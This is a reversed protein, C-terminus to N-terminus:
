GDNIHKAYVFITEAHRQAAAITTTICGYPNGFKAAAMAASTPAARPLRLTVYPILIKSTFGKATELHNTQRTLIIASVAKCIALTFAAYLNFDSNSL